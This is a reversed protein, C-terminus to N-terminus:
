LSELFQIIQTREKKSLHSFRKKSKEAEGGHWLIAEELNRARGDHLFFTHKNVVKQLGIGWLPPTRWEKNNAFKGEQNDALKEGMDHILLDTYPRITQNNLYKIPSVSTKFEPIHCQTCGIKSFLQEGILSDPNDFRRAPVALNRIYSELFNLFKQSLDLENKNYNKIIINEQFSTHNEKPFLPNTLGMDQQAAKANQQMISPTQAKWGFRGLSNEKKVIDWVLNARGSIGDKNKDEPDTNALIDEESIAELLGLGFVAPAIRVSLNLEDLKDKSYNQSHITLKPSRLSYLTGDPYKGLEEEWSVRIDMEKKVNLNAKNQIQEGYISHAIENGQSVKVIMQQMIESSDQPPKGRGDKLHCSSCSSRNFLPGLGDFKKVSSPAEVWLTNFLRNGFTFNPLKEIPMVPSSMGFSARTKVFVTSSGGSSAKENNGLLQVCLLCLISIIKKIEFHKCM